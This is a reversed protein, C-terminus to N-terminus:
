LHTQKRITSSMLDASLFVRLLATTIKQNSCFWAQPESNNTLYTLIYLFNLYEWMTMRWTWENTFLAFRCCHTSKTKNGNSLLNCYLSFRVTIYLATALKDSVSLPFVILLQHLFRELYYACHKCTFYARDKRPIPRGCYM